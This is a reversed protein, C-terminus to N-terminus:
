HPQPLLASPPARLRFLSAPVPPDLEPNQLTILASSGGAVVELEISHAVVGGEVERYDRYAARWERAGDARRVELETLRGLADFAVRERVTGAEDVLETVIGGDPLIGSRTPVLTRDLTPAGLLIEVAEEPTLALHAVEFLLADHVAGKEYYRDNARFFEYHDGDTVLVAATQDLWGLIEVRLRGPREVVLIQKARLNIGAADADVALRATARLGERKRAHETWADVLARPRPDSPDLPTARPAVTQCGVLVIGFLAIALRGLSRM